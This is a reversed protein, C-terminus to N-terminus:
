GFMGPRTALPIRQLAARPQVPRRGPNAHRSGLAHLAQEVREITGREDHAGHAGGAAPVRVSGRQGGLLEVRLQDKVADYVEARSSAVGMRVELGDGVVRWTMAGRKANEYTGAYAGLPHPLPAKRAARKALEDAAAKKYEAARSELESFRRDYEAALDARGLLRDYIYTAMLDAAPSAPGDGNVLVVVGTESVPEFSVHSRYGSFGGFRHVITKGEYTGLDWGYGWGFRHFPGFARDQDAHKAHTAAIAYAPFV